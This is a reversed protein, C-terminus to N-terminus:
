RRKIRALGETARQRLDPDSHGTAVLELFEAADDGGIATVAEIITRLRAPDKFDARKALPEVARPDRLAVLARMAATRVAEDGSDLLAVARDFGGELGRDAVLDLAWAVKDLDSDDLAGLVAADDAQRLAEKEILGKGAQLLAAEIIEPVVAERRDGAGFPREVLVNESPTVREGSQWDLALEVAVVVARGGASGTALDYNVTAVVRASVARRGPPVDEAAAAFPESEALMMGLERALANDDIEVPQAPDVRQIALETVLVTELPHEDRSMEVAADDADRHTPAHQKGKCASILWSSVLFM